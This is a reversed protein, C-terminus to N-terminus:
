LSIAWIIRLFEGAFVAPLVPLLVTNLVPAKDHFSPHSQDHCPTVLFARPLLLQRVADIADPQLLLDGSTSVMVPDVVVNSLRYASIKESVLEVVAKSSLM